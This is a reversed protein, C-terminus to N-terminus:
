VRILKQPKKNKKKLTLCRVYCYLSLCRKIYNWTKVIYGPKATYRRVSHLTLLMTQACMECNYHVLMIADMVM